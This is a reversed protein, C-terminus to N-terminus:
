NGHFIILKTINGEFYLVGEEPQYEISGKFSGVFIVDAKINGEKEYFKGLLM